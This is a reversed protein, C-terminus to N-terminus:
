LGPRLVVWSAPFGLPAATRQGADRGAMSGTEAKGGYVTLVYIVLASIPIYILSWTPYCPMWWIASICGIAGRCDGGV